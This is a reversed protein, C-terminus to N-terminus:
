APLGSFDFLQALQNFASLDSYFMGANQLLQQAPRTFGSKAFYWRTVTAYPHQPLFKECHTLFDGIEQEGIATKQNKVQVLWLSPLTNGAETWEGLLDIEIPVGAKVIGGRREVKSFKPLVVPGTHQFYRTGDVTRGDFRQMVGQLYVEGVEGIFRNLTGRLTAYENKWDKLAEAPALQDINRRHTYEIYRRLMPDSPGSYLDGVERNIVDIQYLRDLTQQVADESVGLAKAIPEVRIDQDPYKTAWLMVKYTLQGGNLLNSYKAFEGQYHQLLKGSRNSLEFNVVEELADLAPFQQCAPSESLMISTISNAYGGAVQWIAEALAENTAIGYRKGLRFVLDIAYERPLPPVDHTTFRGLLAGGFLESLLTSVVSGSVLLPAWHTEAARQFLTTLSRKLQNDENFANALVQFEDIMVATPMNRFRAEDAPLNVVWTALGRASSHPSTKSKDFEIVLDRAFEDHVRDLLSRIPRWDRRGHMLSPERYRFALYSRLYDILFIEAFDRWLIPESKGLYDAFSIYIPIVKDQEHYLRNFLKVLITTKGTRRRGILAHSDHPLPTPVRTAWRWFYDLERHRDVFLDGVLDELPDIRQSM